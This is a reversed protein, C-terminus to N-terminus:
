NGKPWDKMFRFIKGAMDRRITVAWSSNALFVNLQHNNHLVLIHVWTYQWSILLWKWQKTEYIKIPRLNGQAFQLAKDSGTVYRIWTHDNGAINIEVFFCLGENIILIKWLAPINIMIWTRNKTKVTCYRHTSLNILLM